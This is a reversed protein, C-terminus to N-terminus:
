YNAATSAAEYFGLTLRGHDRLPGFAFAGAGGYEFSTKLARSAAASPTAVNM